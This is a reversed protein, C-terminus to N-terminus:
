VCLWWNCLIQFVGRSPLCTKGTQKRTGSAGQSWVHNRNRPLMALIWMAASSCRPWCDAIGWDIKFCYSFFLKREFSLIVMQRFCTCKQGYGKEPTTISSRSRCCPPPRTPRSVESCGPCEVMGPVLAWHLRPEFQDFVESKNLDWIFSIIIIGEQFRVSSLLISIVEIWSLQATGNPRQLM